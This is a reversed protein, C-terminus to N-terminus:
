RPVAQGPSSEIPFGSAKWEILGGRYRRVPTYNQEIMRKTLASATSSGPDDGYVVLDGYGQLRKLRPRQPNLEHLQLNTAGTIREHAYAPESRSDILLVAKPDRAAGVLLSRVEAQSIDQIDDESTTKACGQTLAAASTLIGIPIRLNRTMKAAYVWGARYIEWPVKARAPHGVGM